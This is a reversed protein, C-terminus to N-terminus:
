ELKLNCLNGYVKQRFLKNGGGGMGLFAYQSQDVAIKVARRRQSINMLTSTFFLIKDLISEICQHVLLSYHGRKLFILFSTGM